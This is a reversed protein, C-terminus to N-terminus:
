VSWSNLISLSRTGVTYYFYSVTAHQSQSLDYSKLWQVIADSTRSQIRPKSSLCSPSRWNTINYLYTYKIRDM